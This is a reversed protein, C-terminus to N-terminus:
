TDDFEDMIIAGVVSLWDNDYTDVSAVVVKDVCKDEESDKVTM